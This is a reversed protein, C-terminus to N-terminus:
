EVTIKIANKGLVQNFGKQVTRALPVLTMKKFVKLAEEYENSNFGSSQSPDGFLNPTAHMAKYIRLSAADSIANFTQGSDDNDIKEVELGQDGNNFYLMFEGANEIGTFKSKVGDEIDQKQEDTLNQANPLSIVYRASIGSELTKVIYKGSTAESAMDYLVPTFFSIPYTQLRGSNVCYFIESPVLKDTQSKDFAPYENSKASYKTWKKSFWFKTRSENTRLFEMPINYLEAIEGLKNYIVQLAFGGFTVQDRICSELLEDMTDGMTNVREVTINKSDINFEYNVGKMYECIGNIVSSATVSEKALTRLDNPYTNAPGFKVFQDDNGPLTEKYEPIIVNSETEVRSFCMTKKDKETEKM